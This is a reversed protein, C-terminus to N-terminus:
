IWMGRSRRLTYFCQPALILLCDHKVLQLYKCVFHVMDMMKRELPTPGRRKSTPTPTRATDMNDTTISVDLEQDDLPSSTAATASIESHGHEQFMEERNM